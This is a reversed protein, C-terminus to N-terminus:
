EIVEDARLLFLEPITLGIAKATKLNVALEFKTPGQVPLESPKTGRLIRDVYGAAKSYQDAIDTGYSILGGAAVVARHAYIAPLRYKAALAVILGSHALTFTAPPIILGINPQQGLSAIANELEGVSRVPVNDIAVGFAPGAETVSRAIMSMYPTTAPEYIIAARSLRPSVEKLTEIWKGGLSVEYAAFGTAGGGPHAMSKVFGQGEPDTIGAFVVPTTASSKLIQAVAFSLGTVVVDPKTAMLATIDQQIHRPDPGSWRVDLHLMRDEIWGLKKLGERLASVRSRMETTESSGALVGVRRPSGTEQAHAALPAFLPATAAGGLLTIVDRRRMRSSM